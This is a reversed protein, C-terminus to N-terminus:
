PVGLIKLAEAQASEIGIVDRRLCWKIENEETWSIARHIPMQGKCVDLAEDQMEIVKILKNLTDHAKMSFDESNDAEARLKELAQQLPTM